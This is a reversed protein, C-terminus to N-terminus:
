CCSSSKSSTIQTGTLDSTHSIEFTDHKDIVITLTDNQSYTRNQYTISGSAMKLHLDVITRSETPTIAIMSQSYVTYFVDFSPVIYNRSLFHSPIALYGESYGDSSDNHYTLGYVSTRVTGNLEVGAKKMGDTMYVNHNLSYENKTRVINLLPKMNNAFYFLSLRGSQQTTVLSKPTSYQL